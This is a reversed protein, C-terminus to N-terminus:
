RTASCSASKEGGSMAAPIMSTLGSRVSSKKFGLSARKAAMDAKLKHCNKNKMLFLFIRLKTTVDSKSPTAVSDLPSPKTSKMGKTMMLVATVNEETLDALSLALDRVAMIKGKTMM